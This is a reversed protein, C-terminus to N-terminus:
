PFDSVRARIFIFLPLPAVYGHLYPLFPCAAWARAPRPWALPRSLSLSLSSAMCALEDMDTLWTALSCNGASPDLHDSRNTLEPHIGQTWPQRVRFPHGPQHGPRVVERQSFLCVIAHRPHCQYCVPQIQNMFPHSYNGLCPEHEDLPPKQDM